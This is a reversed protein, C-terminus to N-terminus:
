EAAIQRLAMCGNRSFLVQDNGGASGATTLPLLTGTCDTTPMSGAAAM